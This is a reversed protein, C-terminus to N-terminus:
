LNSYGSLIGTVSAEVKGIKRMADAQQDRFIRELESPSVKAHALISSDSALRRCISLFALAETSHQLSIAPNTDQKSIEHLQSAQRILDAVSTNVPTARSMFSLIVLLVVVGLVCVSTKYVLPLDTWEEM